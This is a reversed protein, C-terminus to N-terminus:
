YPCDARGCNAASKAPVFAGCTGCKVLDEAAIAPHAQGRARANMAAQESARRMADRMQGVRTLFRVGYWAVLLIFGLLLLKPLM